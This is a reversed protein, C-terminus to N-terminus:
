DIADPEIEMDLDGGIDEGAFLDEDIPVEEAAFLDEDIPVEEEEDSVGGVAGEGETYIICWVRTDGRYSDTCM